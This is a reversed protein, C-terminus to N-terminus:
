QCGEYAAEDGADDTADNWCGETIEDVLERRVKAVAAESGEEDLLFLLQDALDEKSVYKLALETARESHDSLNDVIFEVKGHISQQTVM